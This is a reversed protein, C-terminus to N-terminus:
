SKKPKPTLLLHAFGTGFLYGLIVIISPPTIGSQIHTYNNYWFLVASLLISGSVASYISLVTFMVSFFFYTPILIMVM